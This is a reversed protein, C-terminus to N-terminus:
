AAENDPVRTPTARIMELLADSASAIREALTGASTDGTIGLGATGPGPLRSVGGRPRGAAFLTHSVERAIISEGLFGARLANASMGWQRSIILNQDLLDFYARGMNVIATELKVAIADRDRLAKETVAIRDARERDAALHAQRRAEGRLAAVRDHQTDLRRRAAAIQEALKLPEAADDALLADSRRQELQAIEREVDAIARHEAAIRQAATPRVAEVIKTMLSKGERPPLPAPTSSSATLPSPKSTTGSFGALWLRLAPRKM